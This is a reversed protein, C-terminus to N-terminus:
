RSLVVPNHSPITKERCNGPSVTNVSVDMHWLPVLMRIAYGTWEGVLRQAVSELNCFTRDCLLLAVKDLHGSQTLYRATGTAAVGGISEGHIVLQRIGMENIIYQAVAIGDARLTDPTPQFALFASTFIRRMRSLFGPHYPHDHPNRHHRGTCFSSGFSRGYGAYNFVYVDFGQKIYYDIWSPDVNPDNGARASSSTMSNEERPAVNGGVLSLGTSVEILGANPNCYLIARRNATSPLSSSDVADTQGEAVRAPFHVVDIMGGHPRPIWLQRSGSYRSLMCGRMVDFGFISPHPPPDLMPVISALTSQVTGWVSGNKAVFKRRIDDMTIEEGGDDPSASNSSEEDHHEEEDREGESSSPKLSQVFTRLEGCATLLLQSVELIRQQANTENGHDRFVGEFDDLAQLL